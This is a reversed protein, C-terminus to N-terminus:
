PPFLPHTHLVPIAEDLRSTQSEQDDQLLDRKNVAEIDADQQNFRTLGRPRVPHYPQGESRNKLLNIKHAEQLPVAPLRNSDATEIVPDLPTIFKAEVAKGPPDTDGGNSWQELSLKQAQQEYDVAAHARTQLQIQPM